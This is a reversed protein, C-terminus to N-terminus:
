PENDTCAVFIEDAIIEVAAGHYVPFDNIANLIRERTAVWDGLSGKHVTTLVTPCFSDEPLGSERGRAVLQVTQWETEPKIAEIVKPEVENWLASCPHEISLQRSERKMQSLELNAIEVNFGAYVNQAAEWLNDAARVWAEDVEIKSTDVRFVVIPGTDTFKTVIDIFRINSQFRNNHLINLAIPEFDAFKQYEEGVFM